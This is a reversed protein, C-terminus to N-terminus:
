DFRYRVGASLIGVSGFGGEIHVAINNGVRMGIPSLQFIPEVKNVPEQLSEQSAVNMAGLSASSYFEVMETNAWIFETRAFGGIYTNSFVVENKNAYNNTQYYKGYLIHMGATWKRNLFGQIGVYFTGKSSTTIKPDTDGGSISDAIPVTFGDGLSMNMQQWPAFGISAMIEFDPDNTYSMRRQQQALATSSLLLLVFVIRKM